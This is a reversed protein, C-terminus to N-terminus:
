PHFTLDRFRAAEMARDLDDAAIEGLTTQKTLIAAVDGVEPLLQATLPVGAMMAEWAGDVFYAASRHIAEDTDTLRNGTLKYYFTASDIGLTECATELLLETLQRVHGVVFWASPFWPGDHSFRVMPAYEAPPSPFTRNMAGASAFLERVDVSPGWKRGWVAYHQRLTLSGPLYAARHDVTLDLGGEQFVAPWQRVLAALQQNQHGRVKWMLFTEGGVRLSDVVKQLIGLQDKGYLSGYLSFVLEFTDAPLCADDIGREELAVDIVDKRGAFRPSVEWLRVRDASIAKLGAAVLRQGSGIELVNASASLQRARHRAVAREVALPLPGLSTGCTDAVADELTRADYYWGIGALAKQFFNAASSRRGKPLQIDPYTQHHVFATQHRMEALAMDRAEQLVPPPHRWLNRGREPLSVRPGSPAM